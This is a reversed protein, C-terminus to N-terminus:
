IINRDRNKYFPFEQLIKERFGEIKFANRMSYKVKLKSLVKYTLM